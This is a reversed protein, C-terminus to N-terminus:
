VLVETGDLSWVKVSDIKMAANNTAPYNWSPYWAGRTNYFDNATTPSANSWPKGCQGDPFYGNTGGVAVNMILYFDQNFPANNPEGKWPNDVGSFGGFDWFSQSSMDVDLVVNSENDIYTILREPTWLLGYVHMKNGLSETHKYEAHTLEYRNQDWAPGWHLTSAFTDSGGVSCEPGNGRSEM